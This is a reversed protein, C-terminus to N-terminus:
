QDDAGATTNTAIITIKLMKTITFRLTVVSIGSTPLPFHVRHIFLMDLTSSVQFLIVILRIPSLSEDSYKETRDTDQYPFAPFTSLNDYPCARVRKWKKMGGILM